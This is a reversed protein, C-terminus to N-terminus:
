AWLHWTGHSMYVAGLGLWRPSSGVKWSVGSEPEAEVTASLVGFDRSVGPIPSGEKIGPPFSLCVAAGALVLINKSPSCWGRARM